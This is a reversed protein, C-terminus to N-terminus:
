KETRLNYHCHWATAYDMLKTNSSQSFATFSGSFMLGEFPKCTWHDFHKSSDRGKLNHKSSDRGKLSHVFDTRSRYFSLVPFVRLANSSRHIGQLLLLLYNNIYTFTKYITKSKSGFSVLLFFGALSNFCCHGLWLSPLYSVTFAWRGFASQLM